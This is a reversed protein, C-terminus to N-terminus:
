HAFKYLLLGMYEKMAISTKVFNHPLYNIWEKSGWSIYHAPFAKVNMGAKEFIMVARRIHYASTVIIPREYGSRACVEQAFAANEITDRSEGEIIIKDSPLGLDILFDRYFKEASIIIPLGLRKQLGVAAVFREFKHESSGGGLLIIVDGQPNKPIPLGIEFGRLLANSVPTISFVWMLSGILCNVIGIKWRKRFLFWAGMSILAIIFIGPPLLFSTLIKKFIFM